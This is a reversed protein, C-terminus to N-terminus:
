RKRNTRFAKRYDDVPDYEEEMEQRQIPRTLQSWNKQCYEHIKKSIYRSCKIIKSDVLLVYDSPGMPEFKEEISIVWDDIKFQYKPRLISWPDLDPGTPDVITYKKSKVRNLIDMAIDEDSNFKKRFLTNIGFLENVSKIHKM